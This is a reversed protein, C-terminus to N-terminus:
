SIEWDYRHALCGSCNSKANRSIDSCANLTVTKGWPANWAKASTWWFIRHLSCPKGLASKFVPCCGPAIAHMRLRRLRAWSKAVRHVTAWWAGRSATFLAPGCGGTNQNFNVRVKRQCGGLSLQRNTKLITFEFHKRTKNQKKKTGGLITDKRM